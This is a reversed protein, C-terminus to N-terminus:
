FVERERSWAGEEECRGVREQVFLIPGRDDWKIALSILAIFPSLVFLASGAVTIDFLRKCALATKRQSYAM